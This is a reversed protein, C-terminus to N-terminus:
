SGRASRQRKDGGGLSTFVCNRGKNVFKQQHRRNPDGGSQEGQQNHERAHTGHTGHVVQLLRIGLVGRRLGVRAHSALGDFLIELEDTTGQLRRTTPRSDEATIRPHHLENPLHLASNTGRDLPQLEPLPRHAWVLVACLLGVVRLDEVLEFALDSLVSVVEGEDLVAVALVHDEVGYGGIATVHRRVELVSLPDGFLLDSLAVAELVRRDHLPINALLALVVLAHDLADANPHDPLHIDLLLMHWAAQRADGELRPRQMPKRPRATHGAERM